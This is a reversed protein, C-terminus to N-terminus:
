ADRSVPPRGLATVPQVRGRWRQKILASSDIRLRPNPIEPAQRDHHDPRGTPSTAASPSALPRPSARPTVPAPQASDRIFALCVTAGAAVMEANRRFGAARGHAPWDALHREVRGGGGPGACRRTGTRAAPARARCSCPTVNGWVSALADRITATDTWTRSGRPSWCEGLHWRRSSTAGGAARQVGPECPARGVGRHAPLPHVDRGPACTPPGDAPRQAGHGGARRAVVLARRPSRGDVVVALERAQAQEVLTATPGM